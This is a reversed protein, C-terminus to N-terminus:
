EPQPLASIEAILGVHDSDVIPHLSLGIVELEPSVLVHDIPTLPGFRSSAPFTNLLGRGRRPDVLNLGRVFDKFHPSWVSANLDGAVVLPRPLGDAYRRMAVLQENRLATRVPAGPPYPHPNFLSLEQGLARVKASMATGGNFIKHEVDDLPFKSLMGAGFPNAQPFLHFHPYEGILPKLAEASAENVEQLLIVDAKMALVSRIKEPLKTHKVRLNVSAVRLVPQVADARGPLSRWPAYPVVEFGLWCFCLGAVILLPWARLAGLLIVLPISLLFWLWLFSVIAEGVWFWRATLSVACVAILGSTGAVGLLLLGKRAWTSASGGSDHRQKM